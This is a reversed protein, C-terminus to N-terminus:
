FSPAQLEVSCLIQQKGRRAKLKVLDGAKHENVEIGLQPRVIRGNAILQPVVQNVTDVPVAFGIGASSGSPSDIATNVGILRGASDLLPGGSNGPNIAADTQIVDKIERGSISTIMRGTASVVGTTLTQDWGFPNGIAFVSQGVLLDRSTGIAVPKLKERPADIRLVALDHDASAGVFVADYTSKDYLTVKAGTAQEGNPLVVHFNTLIHGAGDWIIGSGEGAAVDKTAGFWLSTSRRVLTTIYVVSPGAERFLEITSAESEALDGRPTVPRPAADVPARWANWRPLLYGGILLGLLIAILLTTVRNM